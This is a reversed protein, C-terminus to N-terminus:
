SSKKGAGDVKSKIDVDERRREEEALLEEIESRHKFWAGEQIM